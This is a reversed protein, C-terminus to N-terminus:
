NHSAEDIIKVLARAMENDVEPTFHSDRLYERPDNPSAIKASNLYPIKDHELAPKLAQFMYDSDGFLNVVFIIPIMGDSRARIAFEQVIRQAVKVENSKPNFGNRDLVAHRRERIMRQAYARRFLRFFASHDFVSAHIVFQNYLSDYKAFVRLSDSWKNEDSLARVYDDFSSYPPHAAKLDGEELFFRDATYPMAFDTNWTMASMTNIM